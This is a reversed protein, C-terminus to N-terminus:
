GGSTRTQRCAKFRGLNGEQILDLMPIGTSPHREAITMVLPLKSEIMLRAALESQEGQNWLQQFLKAEEDKTV